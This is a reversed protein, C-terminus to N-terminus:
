SRRVVFLRVNLLGKLTHDRLRLPGLPPDYDTVIRDISGVLDNLIVGDFIIEDAEQAHLFGSAAAKMGLDHCQMLSRMKEFARVVVEDAIHICVDRNGRIIELFEDYLELLM